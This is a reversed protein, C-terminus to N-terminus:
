AASVISSSSRSRRARPSFSITVERSGPSQISSCIASMRLFARPPAAASSGPYRPRRGTETSSGSSPRPRNPPPPRHRSPPPRRARHRPRAPSPSRDRSRNRSRRTTPSPSPSRSRERARSRSRGRARSRRKDRWPGARHGAAILEAARELGSRHRSAASAGARRRGDGAPDARRRENSGRAGDGGRSERQAGRGAPQPGSGLRGPRRRSRCRAIRLCARRYARSGRGPSWSRSRSWPGPPGASTAGDSGGRCTRAYGTGPPCEGGMAVM